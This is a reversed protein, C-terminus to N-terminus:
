FPLIYCSGAPAQLYTLTTSWPTSCWQACVMGSKSNTADPVARGRPGNGCPPAAMPAGGLLQQVVLFLFCLHGSRVCSICALIWSTHNYGGTCLKRQHAPATPRPRPYSYGKGRPREWRLWSSLFRSPFWTVILLCTHLHQRCMEDRPRHRNGCSRYRSLCSARCGGRTRQLSRLWEKVVRCVVSVVKV